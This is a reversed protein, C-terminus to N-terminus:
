RFGVADLRESRNPGPGRHSDSGPAGPNAGISAIGFASARAPTSWPSMSRKSILSAKQETGTAVVRASPMSWSIQLTLPLPQLRPCGIAAVPARMTTVM